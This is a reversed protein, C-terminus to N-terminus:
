SCLCCLPHLAQVVGARPLVALASAHWLDTPLTRCLMPM